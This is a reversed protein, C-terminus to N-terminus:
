QWGVTLLRSSRRPWPWEGGQDVRASSHLYQGRHTQGALSCCGADGPLPRWQSPTGAAHVGPGAAAPERDPPVKAASRRMARRSLYSQLRTSRGTPLHRASPLAVIWREAEALLRRLLLAACARSPARSAAAMASSPKSSRSLYWARRRMVRRPSCRGSACTDQPATRPDPAKPLTYSPTSSAVLSSTATFTTGTTASSFSSIAKSISIKARIAFCLFM